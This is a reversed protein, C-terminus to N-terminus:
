TPLLVGTPLAYSHQLHAIATAPVVTVKAGGLLLIEAGGPLQNASSVTRLQILEGLLLLM